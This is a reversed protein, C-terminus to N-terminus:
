GSGVSGPGGRRSHGASGRGAERALWENYVRDREARQRSVAAREEHRRDLYAQAEAVRLDAKPLARPIKPSPM